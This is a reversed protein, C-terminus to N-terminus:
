YVPAEDLPALTGAADCAPCVRLRSRNAFTHACDPATCAWWGSPSANSVTDNPTLPGDALRPDADAWTFPADRGWGNYRHGGYCQNFRELRDIEALYRDTGDPRSDLLDALRGAEDESLTLASRFRRSFRTGLRDDIASLSLPDADFHVAEAALAFDRAAQSRSYAYWGLRYYGALVRQGGWTTIFFLFPRRDRVVGARTARGCTSFLGYTGTELNPDAKNDGLRTVERVPVAALPDSYFVSLSGGASPDPVFPKWRADTPPPSM